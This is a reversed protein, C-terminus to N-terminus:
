AESERAFKNKWAMSFEEDSVQVDCVVVFSYASANVSILKYIGDKVHKEVALYAKEVSVPHGSSITRVKGHANMNIIHMSVGPPGDTVGKRGAEQIEGTIPHVIKGDVIPRNFEIDWFVLHALTAPNSAM